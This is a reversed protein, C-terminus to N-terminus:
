EEEASLIEPRHRTREYPSGLTDTDENSSSANDGKKAKDNEESPALTTDYSPHSHIGGDGFLLELTRRHQMQMLSDGLIGTSTAALTCPSIVQGSDLDKVYTGNWLRVSEQHRLSEKADKAVLGGSQVITHPTIDKLVQGSDLDRIQFDEEKISVYERKEEDKACRPTTTATVHHLQTTENFDQTFEEQNSEELSLSLLLTEDDDLTTTNDDALLARENKQNHDDTAETDLLAWRLIDQEQRSSESMAKRTVAWIVALAHRINSGLVLENPGVGVVTIGLQSMKTFVLSHNHLAEMKQQTGKASEEHLRQIDIKQPTRERGDKKTAIPKGGDLTEVLRWLIEGSRLDNLLDQGIKLRENEKNRALRSNIWKKAIDLGRKEWEAYSCSKRLVKNQLSTVQHENKISCSQNM